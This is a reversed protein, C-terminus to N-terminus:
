ERPIRHILSNIAAVISETLDSNRYRTTVMNTAKELLVDPHKRQQWKVNVLELITQKAIYAKRSTESVGCNWSIVVNQHGRDFAYGDLYVADEDFSWGNGCFLTRRPIVIGNVSVSSVSNIPPVSSFITQQGNGNRIETDDKAFLYPLSILEMLFSSARTILDALIDDLNGVTTSSIGTDSIRCYDRVEEVTVLTFEDM